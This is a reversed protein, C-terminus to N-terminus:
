VSEELVNLILRNFQNGHTLDRGTIAETESKYAIGPSVVSRLM